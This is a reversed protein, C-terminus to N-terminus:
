VTVRVGPVRVSPLRLAAPGFDQGVWREDRGLAQAKRLLQPLNGSLMVPKAAGVVEGKEIRFVVSCAVSFDGSAANATHAGLADVVLLGDRVERVVDDERPAELVLNRGAARPAARFTRSDDLRDARVASAAPEGGHRAASARDHLFGRLIGDEVVVTRRSPTGEDDFPASLPGGPYRGDDVLSWGEPLVREGVRGSWASQGTLAAEAPLGRTIVNEFLGDLASPRFVVTRRGEKTKKARRADLAMQAAGYGIAVPDFDYSRGSAFEFGTATEGDRLVAFASAGAHTGRFSAAFGRSTALAYAEEGWALGGGAVVLDGHQSLAAELILQAADLGDEVTLAPIRADHAGDVRPLRAPPAFDAASTALLRAGALARRATEAAQAVDTCYAFGVRAGDSVRLGIGYDEGTSATVIRNAEIKVDVGGAAEVFAEAEAAGAGIARRVAERATEELEGLDLRM